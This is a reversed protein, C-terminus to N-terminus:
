WPLENGQYDYFHGSDEIGLGAIVKLMGAVSVDTTIAANEGGLDTKVWGPHLVVCTVGEEKL